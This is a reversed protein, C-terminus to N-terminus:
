PKEDRLRSWIGLDCRLGEKFHRSRLVGERMYGAREAVIESPGNEVDIRLEVRELELDDLGWDTLLRLARTAVGRGRGTPAVIYGIEGERADLDLRVYAAMGLFTGDSGVIAFGARSGDRWGDVYREAWQEGFGAPPRSPVYTFRRVDDDEALADLGAAHEAGLPELHIDQDALPPSPTTLPRPV